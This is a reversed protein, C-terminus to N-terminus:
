AKASLRLKADLAAHGTVPMGDVLHAYKLTVQASKHGLVSGIELLTSGHQALFSACSHRFDHWRFNKLGAATRIKLWHARLYTAKIATGDEHSFVCQNTDVPDPKIAKLADIAISPLHVSRMTKNKTRVMGADSLACLRIVSRAFDVDAWTLGLMEGRRVGCALAVTVAAYMMPSHAAAAKLVANLEDDSLYRVRAAPESLMLRPPWVRDNPVYGAARGWNWASRQSSLTRVVTAAARGPMLADRAERLQLVGFDMVKVTGYKRSWWKLHRKLDSHYGLALTEPDVIYAANLAAITLTSLDPRASGATRQKRLEDTLTDRWTEAEKKTSFSQWTPKFGKVRVHAGYSRSGDANKMVKIEAM